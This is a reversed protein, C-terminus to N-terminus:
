VIIFHGAIQHERAIAADIVVSLNDGLYLGINDM